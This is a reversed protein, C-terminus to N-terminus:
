LMKFCYKFRLKKVHRMQLVLLSPMSVHGLSLGDGFAVFFDATSAIAMEVCIQILNKDDGKLSPAQLLRWKKWTCSGCLLGKGRLGM